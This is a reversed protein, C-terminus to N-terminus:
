QVVMYFDNFSNLEFKYNKGGIIQKSIKKLILRCYVQQGLNYTSLENATFTIQNVHSTYKKYIIQSGSAPNPSISCEIEDYYGINTLPVIFDVNHFITDNIQVANTSNYTPFTDQLTVTFSPLITSNLTILRQQSYNNGSTTDMYMKLPAYYQLQRGNVTIVGLNGSIGSFQQNENVANVFLTFKTNYLAPSSVNVGDYWQNYQELPFFGFYTNLNTSDGTTTGTTSNNDETSPTNEKKKCAFFFFLILIFSILNTKM